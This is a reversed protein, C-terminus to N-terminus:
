RNYEVVKVKRDRLRNWIKSAARAENVSNYLAPVLLNCQGTDETIYIWDDKALMAKIAYKM